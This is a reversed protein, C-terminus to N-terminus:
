MVRPSPSNSDFGVPLASRARGAAHDEQEGAHPVAIAGHEFTPQSSYQILRCRRAVDLSQDLVSEERWVVGNELDPQVVCEQVGVQRQQIPEARFRDAELLEQGGAHHFDQGGDM